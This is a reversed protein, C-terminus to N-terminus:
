GMEQVSKLQKSSLLKSKGDEDLAVEELEDFTPSIFLDKFTVAAQLLLCPPGQFHCGGAVLSM